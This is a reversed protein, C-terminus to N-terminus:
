QMWIRIWAEASFGSGIRIWNWIMIKHSLILFFEPQFLRLLLRWINRGLGHFPNKFSESLDESKKLRSIIKKKRQPDIGGTKIRIL